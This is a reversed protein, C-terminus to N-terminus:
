PLHPLGYSLARATVDGQFLNLRYDRPELGVPLCEAQLSFAPRDHNYPGPEQRLANLRNCARGRAIVPGAADGFM